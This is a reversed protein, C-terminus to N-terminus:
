VGSRQDRIRFYFIARGKNLSALAKLAMAAFTLTVPLDATPVNTTGTGVKLYVETGNKNLETSTLYRDDDGADGAIVATTNFAADATDEFAEKLEICACLVSQVLAKVTFPTLVQATNATTETLDEHTVEVGLDAGKSIREEETLMFVKM